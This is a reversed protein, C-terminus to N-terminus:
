TVMRQTSAARAFAALVRAALRAPHHLDVWTWRVVEWGAERLRDERRKEDWVVQGAAEPEAGSPIAYKLRGDFEGLTRRDRWAVDSYGVLGQDDFVPFQIDSPELGLEILVARSWSEGPNAM